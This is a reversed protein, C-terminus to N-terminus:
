KVALMAGLFFFYIHYVIYRILSALKMFCASNYSDSGGIGFLGEEQEIGHTGAGDFAGM